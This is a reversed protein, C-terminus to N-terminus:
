FLNTLISIETFLDCFNGIVEGNKFLRYQIPKRELIRALNQPKTRFIVGNSGFATYIREFAAITVKKKGRISKDVSEEGDVGVIIEDDKNKSTVSKNEEDISFKVTTQSAKKFSDTDIKQENGIIQTIVSSSPSSDEDENNSEPSEEIFIEPLEEFKKEEDVSGDLINEAIKMTEDVLKAAKLTAEDMLKEEESDNFNDSTDEWKVDSSTSAKNSESDDIGESSLASSIRSIQDYVTTNLRRLNRKSKELIEIKNALFEVDVQDIPLQHEEVNRNFELKIITFIAEYTKTRSKWM